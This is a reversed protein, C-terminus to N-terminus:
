TELLRRGASSFVVVFFLVNKPVSSSWNCAHASRALNLSALHQVLTSSLRVIQAREGTARASQPPLLDRQVRGDLGRGGERQEGFSQETLLPGKQPVRTGRTLM